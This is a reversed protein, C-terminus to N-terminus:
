TRGKGGDRVEVDTLSQGGKDAPNPAKARCCCPSLKPAMLKSNQGGTPTERQANNGVLSGVLKGQWRALLEDKHQHRALAGQRAPGVPVRSTALPSSHRRFEAIGATSAVSCPRRRGDRAQHCPRHAGCSLTPGHVVKPRYDTSVTCWPIGEAMEIAPPGRMGKFYRSFYERSYEIRKELFEQIGKELTKIM